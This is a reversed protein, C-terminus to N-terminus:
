FLLRIWIKKGTITMQPRIAIALREVANIIANDHANQKKNSSHVYKGDKAM